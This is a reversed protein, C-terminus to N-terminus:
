VLLADVLVLAVGIELIGLGWAFYQRASKWSPHHWSLAACGCMLLGLTTLGIGEVM